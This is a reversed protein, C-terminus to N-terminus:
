TTEPLARRIKEHIARLKQIEETRDQYFMRAEKIPGQLKEIAQEHISVVISNIINDLADQKSKGLTGKGKPDKRDLLPPLSMDQVLQDLFYSEVEQQDKELLKAKDLYTDIIKFIEETSLRTKFTQLQWKKKYSYLLNRESENIPLLQETDQQHKILEEAYSNAQLLTQHIKEQTSLASEIVNGIFLMTQFGSSHTRFGFQDNLKNQHDRLPQFEKEFQSKVGEKVLEFIEQGIEQGGRFPIDKYQDRGKRKDYREFLERRLELAVQRREFAASEWKKYEHYLTVQENFHEKTKKILTDTTNNIAHFKYSIAKVPNIFKLLNILQKNDAMDLSKRYDVKITELARDQLITDQTIKTIYVLLENQIINETQTPIQQSTNRIENTHTLIYDATDIKAKIDEFKNITKNSGYRAYQHAYELYKFKYKIAERLDQPIQENEISQAWYRTFKRVDHLFAKEIEKSNKKENQILQSWYEGLETTDRWSLNVENRLDSVLSPDYWLTKDEITRGKTKLLAETLRAQCDDSQEQLFQVDLKSLRSQSDIPPNDTSHQRLENFRKQKAKEHVLKAHEFEQRLLLGTDENSLEKGERLQRGIGQWTQFEQYTTNKYHLLKLVPKLDRDFDLGDTASDFVGPKQWWHLPIESQIELSKQEMKIYEIKDSVKNEKDSVKNEAAKRVKESAYSSETDIQRQSHMERFTVIAGQTIESENAYEKSVQAQIEKKLQAQKIESGDEILKKHLKLTESSINNKDNIYTKKTDKLKEPKLM